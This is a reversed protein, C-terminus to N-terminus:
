ATQWAWSCFAFENVGLCFGERYPTGQLLVRTTPGCGGAGEGSGQVCCCWSGFAGEGWAWWVRIWSLGRRSRRHTRPRRWIEGLGAPRPHGCHALPQASSQGPHDAGQSNGNLVCEAAVVRSGPGHSLFTGRPALHPAGATAAPPNTCRQRGGSPFRLCASSLRSGQGATLGQGTRGSAMHEGRLVLGNPPPQYLVVLRGKWERPDARGGSGKGVTEGKSVTPWSPLGSGV